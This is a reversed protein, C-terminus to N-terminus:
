VGIVEGSWEDPPPCHPACPFYIPDHLTNIIDLLLLFLGVYNLSRCIDLMGGSLLCSWLSSWTQQQQRGIVVCECLCRNCVAPIRVVISWIPINSEYAFLCSRSPRPDKIGFMWGGRQAACLLWLLMISFLSSWRHAPYSKYISM